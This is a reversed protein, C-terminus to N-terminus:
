SLPTDFEILGDGAGSVRAEIRTPIFEVGNVEKPPRYWDKSQGPYILDIYNGQASPATIAITQNGINHLNV